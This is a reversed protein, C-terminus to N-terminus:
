SSYFIRYDVIKKNKLRAWEWKKLHAPNKLISINFIVFADFLVLSEHCVVDQTRFWINASDPSSDIEGIAGAVIAEEGLSSNALSTRKLFVIHTLYDFVRM